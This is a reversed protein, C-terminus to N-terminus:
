NQIKIIKEFDAVTKQLQYKKMTKKAEKALRKREAMKTLEILAKLFAKENKVFKMNKENAYERNGMADLAVCPMGMAMAEALSLGFSEKVSSNLYIDGTKLLKIMSQPNTATREKVLFNTKILNERKIPNGSILTLELDYKQSFKNLVKLLFNLGKEPINFDASSSVLKLKKSKKIKYDAKFFEERVFLQMWQSKAGDREWLIQKLIKSVVIRQIKIKPLISFLEEKWIEKSNKKKFVPDSQVLQFFRKDIINLSILAIFIYWSDIIIRDFKKEEKKVYKRVAQFFEGRQEAETKKAVLEIIKPKLDRWLFWSTLYRKDGQKNFAVVEVRHGRKRLERVLYTVVVCGGRKSIGPTIFLIKM